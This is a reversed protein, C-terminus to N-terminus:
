NNNKITHLYNLLKEDNVSDAVDFLKYIESPVAGQEILNDILNILVDYFGNLNLIVIPTALRKLYKLTLVQFFEDM